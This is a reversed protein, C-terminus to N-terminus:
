LKLFYKLTVTVGLLFMRWPLKQNGEVECAEWFGFLVSFLLQGVIIYLWEVSTWNMSFAKNELFMQFM